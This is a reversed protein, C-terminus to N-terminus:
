WAAVTSGTYKYQLPTTLHADCREFESESDASAAGLRHGVRSKSLPTRPTSDMTSSPSEALPARAQSSMFERMREHSLRPAAGRDPSGAAM